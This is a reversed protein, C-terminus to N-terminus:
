YDKSWPRGAIRAASASIPAVAFSFATPNGGGKKRDASGKPIFECNIPALSADHQLCIGIFRKKLFIM